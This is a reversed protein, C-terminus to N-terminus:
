TSCRTSRTPRRTALSTSNADPTPGAASAPAATLPHVASYGTYGDVQLTGATNGLADVAAWGSRTPRYPFATLKDTGFVWMYARRARESALVPLPTEDAWVHVSSCVAVMVVAHLPKISEVSRHFLEIVTPRAIPLGDGKFRDAPELASDPRARCM